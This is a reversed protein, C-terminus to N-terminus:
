ISRRSIAATLATIISVFLGQLAFLKVVTAIRPHTLMFFSLMLAMAAFALTMQEHFQLHAFTM